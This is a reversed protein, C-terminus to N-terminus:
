KESEKEKAVAAEAEAAEKDLKIQKRALDALSLQSNDIAEKWVLPNAFFVSMHGIKKLTKTIPNTIDNLSPDSEYENTFGEPIVLRRKREVVMLIGLLVLILSLVGIAGGIRDM